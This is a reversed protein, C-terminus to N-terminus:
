HSWYACCLRGAGARVDLLEDKACVTVFRLYFLKLSSNSCFTDQRFTNEIYSTLTIDTKHTKFKLM